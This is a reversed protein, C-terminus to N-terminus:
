QGKERRLRGRVTSRSLGALRAVMTSTKIHRHHGLLKALPERIREVNKHFNALLQQAQRGLGCKGRGVSSPHEGPLWAATRAMSLM